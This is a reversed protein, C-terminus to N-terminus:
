QLTVAALTHATCSNQLLFHIIYLIYPDFAFCSCSTDTVEPLPESKPAGQTMPGRRAQYARETIWALPANHDIWTITLPSVPVATEEIISKKKYPQQINSSLHSNSKLESTSYIWKFYRAHLWLRNLCNDLSILPVKRLLVLCCVIM